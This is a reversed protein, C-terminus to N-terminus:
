MRQTLGQRTEELITALADPDAYMATHGTDMIRVEVAPIRSISQDQLLPPLGRDRLTKIYTRPVPSALGALRVPENFVSISEATIRSLCRQADEPTLDHFLTDALGPTAVGSEIASHAQTQADSLMVRRQLLQAISEGGAPIPAAIFVCHKIRAPIRELLGIATIGGMSHAVLVIDHLDNALVETEASAIFSAYTQRDLPAPRRGRGPLDIALMPAALRALMPEWCWAGHAGGHILLYTSM